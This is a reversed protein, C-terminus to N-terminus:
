PLVLSCGVLALAVGLWSRRSVPEGGAWAWLLGFLPSTSSLTQAIGAPMWKLALQQLWLGLYTSLFATMAIVPLWKLPLRRIDWANRRLGWSLVLLGATLSITASWRPSIDSGALAARALVVSAGQALAYLSGWALGQWFRRRKGGMTLPETVALIVGLVTLAMGLLQMPQLREGLTWWALLTVVVPSLKDMVLTQSVGLTPLAQLFATDGIGIGLIGSLAM